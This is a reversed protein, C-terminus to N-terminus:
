EIDRAESNTDDDGNRKLNGNADFVEKIDIQPKNDNLNMLDLIFKIEGVNNFMPTASLLLLKLNDTYKALKLLNKGTKEDEKNGSVKINHIEDIIILRDSFERKLVRSEIQRINRKYEASDKELKTTNKFSDILSKSKKSIYGSFQRYGMFHYYNKIIDNIMKAIKDKSINRINMPNVEQILSNGICSRINWIGNTENLLNDDFLQLKFNNQVNENALVIIKKSTDTQKMYERYEESVGIASCTKGTGLGHYLLLSNYPTQNSLFNKVFRQHTALEFDASCLKDAHEEIDDQNNIIDQQKDIKTDNFEKKNFIKLSFDPEDTTPYLITDNM